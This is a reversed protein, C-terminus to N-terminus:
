QSRDFGLKSESMTVELPVGVGSDYMMLTVRFYTRRSAGFGNKAIVESAVQSICGDFHAVNQYGTEFQASSPDRLREKIAKHAHVIAVSTDRCKPVLPTKPATSTQEKPKPPAGGINRPIETIAILVLACIFLAKLKGETM